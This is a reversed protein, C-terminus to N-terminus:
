ITISTTKADGWLSELDYYERYQKQFVHVLINTYDMLIWQANEVGEIHWPREKLETKVKREISAALSAVHTNSNGSCIIFYECFSNEIERLDLVIIDEGKGDSISSLICNIISQTDPKKSM